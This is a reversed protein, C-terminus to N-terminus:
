FLGDWEKIWEQTGSSRNNSVSANGKEILCARRQRKDRLKNDKTKM